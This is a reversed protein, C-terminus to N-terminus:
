LAAHVGPDTRNRPLDFWFQLWIMSRTRAWAILEDVATVIFRKDFLQNSIANFSRNHKGPDGRLSRTQGLPRAHDIGNCGARQKRRVLLKRRLPQDARL